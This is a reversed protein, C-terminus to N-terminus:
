NAVDFFLDAIVVGAFWPLGARNVHEV